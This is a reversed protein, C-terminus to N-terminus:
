SANMSDNWTTAVCGCSRARPMIWRSACGTSPSSTTGPTTTVLWRISAYSDLVLVVSAGPRDVLVQRDFRGARLLAPDLVDVRNTAAIVIVKDTSSFGDM